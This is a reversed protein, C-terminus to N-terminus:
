RIPQGDKVSLAVSSEDTASAKEAKSKGGRDGGGIVFPHDDILLAFTQPALRTKARGANMQEADPVRAAPL